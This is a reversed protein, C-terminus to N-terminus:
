EHDSEPLGSLELLETSTESLLQSLLRGIGNMWWELTVTDTVYNSDSAAHMTDAICACADVTMGLRTLRAFRTEPAPTIQSMAISRQLTKFRAQGSDFPLALGHPNVSRAFSGARRAAGRVARGFVPAGHQPRLFVAM